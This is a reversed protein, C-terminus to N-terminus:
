APPPRSTAVTPDGDWAKLHHIVARQPFGEGALYTVFDEDQTSVVVQRRRAIEAIVKAMAEKCRNDLNQTPDDVYLLDLGHQTSEALGFFLALATATLQGDSLVLRADRAPGGRGAKVQFTYDVKSAKANAEIELADFVPQRVLRRYLEQARPAARALLGNALDEKAAIVAKRISELQIARAEMAAARAETAAHRRKAAEAKEEHAAVEARKQVVPVLVARIEADRRAIEDLDAEMAEVSRALKREEDRRAGLAEELRVQLKSEAIAAGLAEGAKERVKEAAQRALEVRKELGAHEDLASAIEEIRRSAEEIAASLRESAETASGEVRERLRGALDGGQPLARECVPCEARRARAVFAHADRLLERLADADKRDRELAKRREQQEAQRALLAKREGRDKVLAEVAALAADREALAERAREALTTLDAIAKQVPSLRKALESGLRIAKVAREFAAATARVQALGACAPLPELGVQYRRGLAVLDRSLDAYRAALGTANLDNSQFRLERAARQADELQQGLLQEKSALDQQEGAMAERAAEAADAFDKPRLLELVHEATDMGLLRDLAKNREKPEDLLLGRIRSQQLLVARVFTDMDLGLLEDRRAEAEAGTWSRTGLQVTFARAGGDRAIALREAGRSFVVEGSYAKGRGQVPCLFSDLKSNPLVDGQFRGFLIWQLAVAATSKGVGNDGHLMGPLGDFAYTQEGGVGRFHRVTISALRWRAATGDASM